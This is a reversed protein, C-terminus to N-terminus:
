SLPRDLYILPRFVISKINAHPNAIVESPPGKCKPPTMGEPDHGWCLLTTRFALILFAGTWGQRGRASWRYVNPFTCM